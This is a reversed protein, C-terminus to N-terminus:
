RRLEVPLERIRPPPTHLLKSDGFGIVRLMAPGPQFRSLLASTITVTPRYRFIRPDVTNSSSLRARQELLTERHTGQVLDLRIRNHVEGSTIVDYGVVAGPALVSGSTELEIWLVQRIRRYFGWAALVIYVGAVVISARRVGRVIPSERRTLEAAFTM